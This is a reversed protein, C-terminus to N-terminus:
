SSNFRWLMKLCHSQQPPMSMVAVYSNQKIVNFFREVALMVTYGYPIGLFVSWLQLSPRQDDSPFPIRLTGGDWKSITLHPRIHNPRAELENLSTPHGVRQGLHDWIHEIPFLDPSRAPWPLTTVSHLYDQSVRAM